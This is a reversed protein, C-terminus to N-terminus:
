LSRIVRVRDAITRRAVDADPDIWEHGHPAGPHVHLECSVGAAWLRSAYSVSEDRFIDLEGVEVYAPALGAFEELRAPAAAAPVGAGGRQDGLLADWGTFNNDYTWTAHEVLLRDPEVNCDDLMPYVLVQRALEIGADRALIAAGAAVAGGGSDGMVAIRATDVGLEASRGLLWRIGALADEAPTTGRHEPALRYGVHLFPVGTLDVLLKISPEYNDLTGGILGGGHLYVVAPGPQVEATTYWRAEIRGDAVDIVHAATTVEQFAPLGAFALDADADIAARLALADGRATLEFASAQASDDSPVLVAALEPDLAFAM